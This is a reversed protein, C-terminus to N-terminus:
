RLDEAVLSKGRLVPVVPYTNWQLCVHADESRYNLNAPDMFKQGEPHSLIEKKMADFDPSKGLLLEELAQAGCEDEPSAKVAATGLAVLSVVTEKGEQKRKESVSRIFEAVAEINVFSAALVMEAVGAAACLGKSGATTALIVTKGRVDAQQAEWPSNGLDFGEPPLGEVEGALIWEPHADKLQRAAGISGAPVVERAGRDLLVALHSTARFVDFVVAIGRAQEAGTLLSFRQIQM